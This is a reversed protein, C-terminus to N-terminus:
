GRAQRRRRAAFALAAVGTAFLPLAAPVPVPTVTLRGFITFAGVAGENTLRILETTTRSFGLISLVAQSSPGLAGAPLPVSMAPDNIKVWDAAAGNRDFHGLDLVLPLAWTGITLTFALKAGNIGTGEAVQGNFHYLNAIAFDVTGNLPLAFNVPDAGMFQIYSKSASQSGGFTVKAVNGTSTMQAGDGGSTETFEASGVGIKVTPGGPTGTSGLVGGVPKVLSSGRVGGGRKKKSKKSLKREVLSSSLLSRNIGAKAKFASATNSFSFTNVPAADTTPATSIFLLAAAAVGALSMAFHM